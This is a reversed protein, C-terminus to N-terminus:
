QCEAMCGVSTWLKIPTGRDRGGGFTLLNQNHSKAELDHINGNSKPKKSLASVSQVVECRHCVACPIVNQETM